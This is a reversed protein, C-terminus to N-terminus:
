FKFLKSVDFDDAIDFVRNNKGKKSPKGMSFIDRMSTGFPDNKSQKKTNSINMFNFTGSQKGQKEYPMSFIDENYKPMNLMSDISKSAKPKSFSQKSNRLPTVDVDEPGAEGVLMYTPKKIIGHYGKAAKLPSRSKADKGKDWYKTGSNRGRMSEFGHDDDDTQEYEEKASERDDIEDRTENATGENDLYDNEKDYYTRHKTKKTKHHFTQPSEGSSSRDSTLFDHM